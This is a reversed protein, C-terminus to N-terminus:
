QKRQVLREQNWSPVLSRTLPGAPGFSREPMQIRERAVPSSRLSMSSERPPAARDGSPDRMTKRRMEAGSMQITFTLPSSGRFSRLRGGSLM